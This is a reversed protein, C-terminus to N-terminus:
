GSQTLSEARTRILQYESLLLTRGRRKQFLLLELDSYKLSLLLKCYDGLKAGVANLIVEVGIRVMNAESYMGFPM